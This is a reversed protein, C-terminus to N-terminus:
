NQDHTTFLYYWFLEDLTMYNNDVKCSYMFLRPFLNSRQLYNMDRLLDFAWWIFEEPYEM